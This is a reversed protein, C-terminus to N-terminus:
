SAWEFIKKLGRKIDKKTVQFIQRVRERTLGFLPGIEEYTMGNVLRLKAIQYRQDNILSEKKLAGLVVDFIDAIFIKDNM